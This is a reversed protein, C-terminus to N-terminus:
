LELRPRRSRTRVLLQHVHDYPLGGYTCLDRVTVGQEGLAELAADILRPSELAGILHDGPERRRWGKASFLKMASVYREPSIKGLTKARMLLAQMSVRWEVKLEMLRPMDVKAPLQRIIDDAPMLFAAAFQHAHKETAAKGADDDGHMVLHALEHAADFRSRTAVSDGVSLAVIPRGEYNVSFADIETKFRKSRVVVIGNRELLRVVNDIPGAPVDWEARVRAAIAEPADDDGPDAPYTPVSVEPLELHDEVVSLFDRMLRARAVYQKREKASASKLSRFFGKREEDGSRDLFFEPPCGYLEALAALSAATPKTRDNELQSLAPASLPRGTGALQEAAERQNWGCLERALVLRDGSAMPAVERAAQLIRGDAM